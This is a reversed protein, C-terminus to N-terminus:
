SMGIFVHVNLFDWEVYALRLFLLRYGKTSDPVEIISNKLDPRLKGTINVDLILLQQLFLLFQHFLFLNCLLLVYFVDFSVLPQHSHPRNSHETELFRLGFKDVLLEFDVNVLFNRIHYNFDLIHPFLCFHFFASIVFKKWKMSPFRNKVLLLYTKHM